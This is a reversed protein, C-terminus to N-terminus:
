DQDDDPGTSKKGTHTARIKPNAPFFLPPPTPCPTVTM